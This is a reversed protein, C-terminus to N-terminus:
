GASLSTFLQLYDKLQHTILFNDRVHERARAGMAKVEEPHQLLHYAREACTEPSDVLYGTEGDIVQLPIGGANGGIVPKGKWLAETVVLGFGERISKQIVVDGANQFANVEVNGVGQLNHLIHIDYDEGAHRITREYYEWGEPDDSAMSGVLALQLEPIRAKVMRYADIVGLPDKWPDFRSVQVLMPRQTDMGFRRIIDRSQEMTQPQNKPSLPDITPHIIALTPFHLDGYVYQRMTFVGADYVELYPQLFNWVDPYPASTDIHCRWIWHRGGTRGHFHLMAAPQPDHIIIFDYEGQFAEANQRNYRNYIERIDDTMPVEAGQMGNHFSKTVNFFEDEGRIVQWQADLGVNRMLPVLASLIEAVGGGFATANVHLVRAGRLAAALARIEDAEDRGIISQYDELRKKGVSVQQLV